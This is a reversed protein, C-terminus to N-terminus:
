KESTKCKPCIGKHYIYTEEVFYDKLNPNCGFAGEQPNPKVPLPIDYITGCHTCLFHAHGEMMADYRANKEDINLMRVACKEAFLRLTNYVTTKSLTPMHGCLHSYIEYATPHIPNKLLFDYIAIRQQSAHIGKSELYEQTKKM